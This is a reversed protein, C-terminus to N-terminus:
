DKLCKVHRLSGKTRDSVYDEKSVLIKQNCVSCRPKKIGAYLLEENGANKYCAKCSPGLDGNEDHTYYQYNGTSVNPSGCKCCILKM